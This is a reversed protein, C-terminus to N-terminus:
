LTRLCEAPAAERDHRLRAVTGAGVLAVIGAVCGFTLVSPTLRHDALQMLYAFLPSLTLLISATIPETRKIGVQLLYLPLAVGFVAISASPVLAALVGPADDVAVLVWTVALILFFRLALVRRPPLSADSLRKSYLVNAVSGVGTLLVLVVGTLTEGATRDLAGRGTFSGWVLLGILVGIGAAVWAEARLAPFGRRLVPNLILTLVPGLAIGVVNVVAPELYRLAFLMSLWTVATTVNIMAVDGRLERVPRFTTAAGDRLLALVLFVVAAIGFSVAAVTAPRLQELQNGAFVDLAATLAAFGTLPLVGRMM